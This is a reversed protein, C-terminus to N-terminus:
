TVKLLLKKLRVAARKLNLEQSNQLFSQINNLIKEEKRKLDEKFLKWDAKNINFSLSFSSKVFKTKKILLSFQIIKYNLDTNEEENIQWDIIDKIYRRIAFILDLVSTIYSFASSTRTIM